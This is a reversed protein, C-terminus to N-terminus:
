KELKASVLGALLMQLPHFCLMPILVIGVEGMDPVTLLISSVLPLGAALSKQSACYFAAIRQPTDLKLWAASIWVLVASFLLLMVVICVTFILSESSLQKFLSEEVSKAFSLYVILLIIGSSVTRVVLGVKGADLTVLRQVLQGLVLPVVLMLTLNLLVRGFPIEVALEWKFYFLSAVPILLVALLNSVVTSVIANAVNGGSISTYATASAITTPLLALFGFGLVLETSLAPRVLFVVLAVLAPFWIFNWLLVFGHLRLPQYGAVLSRTPLSVGQLFFVIAVGIRVWWSSRLFGTESAPEPFVVALGVVVVLLLSFTHKKLFRNM